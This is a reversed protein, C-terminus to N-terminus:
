KAVPLEVRITTGKGVRSEVLIRGSQREVVDKVVALGLGSGRNKSSFYPQFIKDTLEEPIGCGSDEISIAISSSDETRAVTAKLQKQKQGDMSEIANFILNRFMQDLGFRSGWVCLGQGAVNKEVSVGKLIMLNGFLALCEDLLVDLDVKEVAAKNLRGAETIEKNIKSIEKVADVIRELHGKMTGTQNQDLMALEANGIISMLPNNIQHILKPILRHLEHLSTNQIVHLRVRDIEEILQALTFPKEIFGDCRHHIADIMLDKRGYATMIIVPLDEHYCRIDRLLDIGSRQPMAYDTLILDIEKERDRELLNLAEKASLAAVVEYGKSRLGRRLSSIQAREDDVVLINM